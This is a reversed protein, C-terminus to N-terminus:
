GYYTPLAVIFPILHCSDSVTLLTSFSLKAVLLFFLIKLHSMM